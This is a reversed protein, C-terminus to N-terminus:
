TRYEANIRIYEASLDTSWVTAEEAGPGFRMRIKCEDGQMAAQAREEAYDEARAGDRVICVDGIHVEARQWDVDEAGARGAAALIRGWNPDGAHVATKVLLSEAVSRAITRCAAESGAGIVRVTLLRTAGEGDRVIQLALERCVELVAASLLEAGEGSEEDVRVGARGTAALLCADNTSTDGDVTICNFSGAAARDLMASLVAAPVEADTAVFALMTAMDPCIMGAGKAFGSLAVEAGDIRVVRSATKPRTDTTMVARAAALWGGEDLADLACPLAAVLRQAPLEEGIVGTSFPLVADTAVRTAEALARCCHLASEVGHAGLGANANGSNFLLYRPAPNSALHRRAVTVPAAAWANRTFVAAAATGPALEAVAVDDREQYRIGAAATGLRIGPVLQVEQEAAM